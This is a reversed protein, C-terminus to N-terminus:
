FDDLSVLSKFSSWFVLLAMLTFRSWGIPIDCSIDRVADQPGMETVLGGGPHGKTVLGRETVIM